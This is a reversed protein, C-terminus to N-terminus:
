KYYFLKKPWFEPRTWACEPWSIKSTQKTPESRGECDPGATHPVRVPGGTGRVEMTVVAYAQERPAPECASIMTSARHLIAEPLCTDYGDGLGFLRLISVM